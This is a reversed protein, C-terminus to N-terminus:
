IGIRCYLRSPNSLFQPMSAGKIATFKAKRMSKKIPAGDQSFAVDRCIFDIDTYTILYGGPINRFIHHTVNEGKQHGVYQYHGREEYGKKNAIVLIGKSGVVFSSM